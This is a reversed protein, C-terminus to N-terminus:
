DYLVAMEDFTVLVVHIFLAVREAQCDGDQVKNERNNSDNNSEICVTNEFCYINSLNTFTITSSVNQPSDPASAVLSSIM